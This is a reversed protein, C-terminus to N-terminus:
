HWTFGKCGHTWSMPTVPVALESNRFREDSTVELVLEDLIYQNFLMKEAKFQAIQEEEQSLLEVELLVPGDELVDVTFQLIGETWSHRSKKVYKIVSAAAFEASSISEEIEISEADDVKRKETRFCETDFLNDGGRCTQKRYRINDATYGQLIQQLEIGMGKPFNPLRRLLFKREVERKQTTSM